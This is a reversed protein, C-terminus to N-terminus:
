AAEKKFKTTTRNAARSPPKRDPPTMLRKPQGSETACSAILDDIDEPKYRVSTGIM